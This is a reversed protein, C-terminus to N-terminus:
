NDEEDDEGDPDTVYGECADCGPHDPDRCDPAARLRQMYRRRSDDEDMADQREYEDNRFFHTM